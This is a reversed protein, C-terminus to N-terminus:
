DVSVSMFSVANRCEKDFKQIQHRLEAEQATMALLRKRALWYALGKARSLLRLLTLPLWASRPCPVLAVRLVPTPGTSMEPWHGFDRSFLLLGTGEPCNARFRSIMEPFNERLRHVPGQGRSFEDLPPCLRDALDPHSRAETLLNFEDDTGGLLVPLWRRAELGRLSFTLHGPDFLVIDPRPLPAIDCRLGYESKMEDRYRAADAVFGCIKPYSQALGRLTIREVTERESQAAMGERIVLARIPDLPGGKGAEHGLAFDIAKIGVEPDFEYDRGKRWVYLATLALAAGLEARASNAWEPGLFSAMVGVRSRGAQTLEVQNSAPRWDGARLQLALGFAETLFQDAPDLPVENSIVMSTLARECLLDHGDLVILLDAGRRFVADGSDAAGQAVRAILSRPGGGRLVATNRSRLHDLALESARAFVLQSRYALMRRRTSDEAAISDWRIGSADLVPALALAMQPAREDFSGVHVILGDAIANRIVLALVIQRDVLAAPLEVTRGFLMREAMRRHWKEPRSGITEGILADENDHGEM